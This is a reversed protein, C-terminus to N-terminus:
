VIIVVVLRWLYSLYCHYCHSCYESSVAHCAFLAEGGCVAGSRSFCCSVCLRSSRVLRSFSVCIGLAWSRSSVRSAWALRVVLRRWRWPRYEAVRGFLRLALLLRLRGVRWWLWRRGRWRVVCSSISRRCGVYLFLGFRSSRGSPVSLGRPTEESM